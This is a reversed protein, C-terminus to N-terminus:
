CDPSWWYLTFQFVMGDLVGTNDQIEIKSQQWDVALVQTPVIPFYFHSQELLLSYDNLAVPFQDIFACTGQKLTLYTSFFSQDLMALEGFLPFNNQVTSFGMILANTPIGINDSNSLPYQTQTANLPVEYSAIRLGAFQEGTRLFLRNPFEPESEPNSYIVVIEFVANDVAVARPNLQIYSQNWDIFESNIPQVFKARALALMSFESFVLDIRSDFSSRDKLSLYSNQFVVPTVFPLRNSSTTPIMGDPLRVWLGLISCDHPLGLENIQQLNFKLGGATTRINITKAQFGNQCIPYNNKSEM